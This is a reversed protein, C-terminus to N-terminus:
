GLIVSGQRLAPPWVVVKKGKQWQVLMVPRGVQAGTQPDIKFPGYFTTFEANSAANRLLGDDLAGAELLCHESVLGGAYAQAMAYDGGDMGFGKHRRALDNASPGFDPPYLAGPEWQSPGIFGEASIGLETGFQAIGAAVLVLAEADVRASELERGLALDDQIRGVGVVVDAKIDKIQAVLNPFDHEPPLYSQEYVIQWGLHRAHTQMGTVVAKPFSGQASALIAVRRAKSENEMLLDIVGELYRSAPTLIGVVSKFGRRYIEDSAGGQNWIVRGYEETVSASALTLSSSYPGLLIDVQDDVILKRTVARAVSPSSEDDHHILRVPLTRGSCSLGGRSNTDEVWCLVGQLAQSGQSSFQGSLSM